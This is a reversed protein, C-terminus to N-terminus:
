SFRLYYYYDWIIIIITIVILVIIIVIYLWICMFIQFLDRENNSKFLKKNSAVVIILYIISYSHLTINRVFM